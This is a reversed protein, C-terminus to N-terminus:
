EGILLGKKHVYAIEVVLYAFYNIIMGAAMGIADFKLFFLGIAFAFLLNFMRVIVMGLAVSMFVDKPQDFAWETILFSIISSVTCLAMGFIAAKTFSATSYLATLVTVSLYLALSVGTFWIVFSRAAQKSKLVVTQRADLVHEINL